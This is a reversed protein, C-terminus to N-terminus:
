LVEARGLREGEGRVDTEPLYPAEDDINGVFQPLPQHGLVKRVAQNMGAHFWYHYTVRLILNGILRGGSREGGRDYPGLLREGSLSDLWPDSRATIDTWAAFVESLEPTTGPAGTRFTKDIAPYPTVGQGWTLFYKQEQWALHGVSWGIANLGGPRALADEESLNRFGRRFERRAYRLQLVTPHPGTQASM